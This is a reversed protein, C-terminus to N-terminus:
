ADLIRRLKRVDCLAHLNAVSDLGLQGCFVFLVLCSCDRMRVLVIEISSQLENEGAASKM